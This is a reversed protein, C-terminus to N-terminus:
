HLVQKSSCECRQHRAHSQGIKNAHLVFGDSLSGVARGVAHVGRKVVGRILKHRNVGKLCGGHHHTNRRREILVCNPRDKGLGDVGREEARKRRQLVVAPEGDTRLIGISGTVYLLDAHVLVERSEFVTSTEGHICEDTPRPEQEGVLAWIGFSAGVATNQNTLEGGVPHDVQGHVELPIVFRGVGEM